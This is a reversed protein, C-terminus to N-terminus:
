NRIGCDAIRLGCDVAQLRELRLTAPILREWLLIWVEEKFKVKPELITTKGISLSIRIHPLNCPLERM